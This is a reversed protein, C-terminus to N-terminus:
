QQTPDIKGDIIDIRQQLDQKLGAANNSSGILELAKEYAARAQTKDGMQFYTQGLLEYTQPDPNIAIAKLYADAAGAFDGASSAAYAKQIYLQKKVSSSTRPDNLGEEIKKDADKADGGLRLNQVDDVQKPLGSATHKRNHIWNIVQQTLLGLAFAAVVVVVVLLATRWVKKAPKIVRPVQNVGMNNDQPKM